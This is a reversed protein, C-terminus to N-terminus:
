KHSEHESPGNASLPMVRANVTVDGQNKFSFTLPVDEGVKLAKQLGMIMVHYDGPKLAIEAGAPVRLEKVSEMRMMGDPGTSAHLHAMGAVPTRVGTLVDDVSGGNALVAYGATVKAAGPTARVWAEKVAVEASAPAALVGAGLLIAILIRKL